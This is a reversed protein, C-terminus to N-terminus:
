DLACNPGKGTHQDIPRDNKCSSERGTQYQVRQPTPNCWKLSGSNLITMKMENPARRIQSEGIDAAKVQQHDNAVRSREIPQQTHPRKTQRPFHRLARFSVCVAINSISLLPRLQLAATQGTVSAAKSPNWTQKSLFVTNINASQGFHYQTNLKVDAMSLM